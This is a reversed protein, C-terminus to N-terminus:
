IGCRERRSGPGAGPGCHLYVDLAPLGRAERHQERAQAIGGFRVLARRRAEELAMGQRLNEETAAELHAAIEADLDNDIPVRRFVAMLRNWARLVSDTM